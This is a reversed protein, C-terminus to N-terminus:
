YSLIQELKTCFCHSTTCIAKNGKASLKFIKWIENCILSYNMLLNKNPHLNCKLRYIWDMSFRKLPSKETKSELLLLLNKYLNWLKNVSIFGNIFFPLQIDATPHHAIATHDPRKPQSSSDETFHIQFQLAFVLTQLFSLYLERRCFSAPILSM